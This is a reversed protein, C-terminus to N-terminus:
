VKQIADQVAKQLDSWSASPAKTVTIFDNLLFVAVIGDIAFVAAAIPNNAATDKKFTASGSAIAKGEITFKLANENPTPDISIVRPM